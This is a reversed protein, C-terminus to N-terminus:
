ASAALYCIETLWEPQPCLRQDSKNQNCTQRQHRADDKDRRRFRSGGDIIMVIDHRRFAEGDATRHMAKFAGVVRIRTRTVLMLAIAIRGM